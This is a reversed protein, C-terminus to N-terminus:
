LMIIITPLSEKIMDPHQPNTTFISFGYVNNKTKMFENLTGKVNGKHLYWRFNM